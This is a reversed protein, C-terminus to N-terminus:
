KGTKEKVLKYLRTFREKENLASSLSINKFSASDPFYAPLVRPALNAAILNAALDNSEVSEWTKNKETEVLKCFEEYKGESHLMDIFCMVKQDTSKTIGLLKLTEYYVIDSVNAIKGAVSQTSLDIMVVQPNHRNIITKHMAAIATDQIRSMLKDGFTVGDIMVSKDFSLGLYKAFSSKGSGYFGSVWIGVEKSSDDFATQLDQIVDEYNRHLKDTVVYERIESSLDQETKAGFTVVSEITRNLKKSPDFLDQIKHM